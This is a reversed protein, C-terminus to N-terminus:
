TDQQYKKRGSTERYRERIKRGIRSMLTDNHIHIMMYM